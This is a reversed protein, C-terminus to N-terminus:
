RLNIPILQCLVRFLLKLIDKTLGNMTYIKPQKNCIWKSASIAGHTFIENTNILLSSM